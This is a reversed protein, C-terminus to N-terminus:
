AEDGASASAATYKLDPDNNRQLGSAPNTQLFYWPLTSLQIFETAM